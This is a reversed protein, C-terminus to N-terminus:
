GLKCFLYLDQPVQEVSPCTQLPLTALETYLLPGLPHM